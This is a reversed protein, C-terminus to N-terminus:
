RPFLSTIWCANVAMNMLSYGNKWISPFPVGACSAFIPTRARPFRSGRCHCHQILQSSYAENAQAVLFEGTSIDAFAVGINERGTQQVAALYNNSKHDLLTDDTTVGPTIVETVGRKVIKKDKSPKELQECIAVRLGAKVLKPMYLDLAHYSIPWSSIRDETVEMTLVIGTVEATRIADAGFTEQMLGSSPPDDEGNQWKM